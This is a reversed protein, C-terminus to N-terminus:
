ILEDKDPFIKMGYGRIRGQDDSAIRGQMIRWFKDVMWTKSVNGSVAELEQSSYEFLTNWHMPFCILDAIELGLRNDKKSYIILEKSTLRKRAELSTLKVNAFSSGENYIKRYSKATRPDYGSGRAEIMVRCRLDPKNEGSQRELRELKKLFYITRELLWLMILNYPDVLYRSYSSAMREKDITISVLQGDTESLLELIDLWLNQRGSETLPTRGRALFLETFHFRYERDGFYKKKIIEFKPRVVKFYHDGRVLYGAITLFRSKADQYVGFTSHGTEDLYLLYIREYKKLQEESIM